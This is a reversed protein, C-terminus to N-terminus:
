QAQHTGYVVDSEARIPSDAFFNAVELHHVRVLFFDFTYQMVKWTPLFKLPVGLRLFNGKYQRSSGCPTGSTPSTAAPREGYLGNSFRSLFHVVSILPVTQAIANHSTGSLVNFGNKASSRKRDSKRLKGLAKRPGDPRRLDRMIQKSTVHDNWADQDAAVAVALGVVASDNVRKGGYLAIALRPNYVRVSGCRERRREGSLACSTSTHQITENEHGCPQPLQGDRINQVLEESKSGAARLVTLRETHAVSAVDRRHGGLARSAAQKRRIGGGSRPGGERMQSGKPACSRAKVKARHGQADRCAQRGKGREREDNGDGKKTPLPDDQVTAVFSKRGPRRTTNRMANAQIRLLSSPANRPFTSHPSPIVLPLLVSTKTERSNVGFGPCTLRGPNLLAHWTRRVKPLLLTNDARRGEVRSTREVQSRMEKRGTRVTTGADPGPTRLATAHREIPHGQIVIRGGDRRSFQFGPRNTREKRADYPESTMYERWDRYRQKTSKATLKQGKGEGDGSPEGQNLSPNSPVGASHRGKLPSSAFQPILGGEAEDRLSPSSPNTKHANRVFGALSGQPGFLVPVCVLQRTRHHAGARVIQTGPSIFDDETVTSLAASLGVDQARSSFQWTGTNRLYPLATDIRQECIGMQFQVTRKGRALSRLRPVTLLRGFLRQDASVNPWVSSVLEVSLIWSNRREVPRATEKMQCFTARLQAEASPGASLLAIRIKALLPVPSFSKNRHLHTVLYDNAYYPAFPNQRQLPAAAAAAIHLPLRRCDFTRCMNFELVAARSSTKAAAFNASAAAFWHRQLPLEVDVAAINRKEAAFDTRCVAAIHCQLPLQLPLEVYTSCCQQPLRVDTQPVRAETQAWTLRKMTSSNQAKDMMEQPPYKGAASGDVAVSGKRSSIRPYVMDFACAIVMRSCFDVDIALEHVDAELGTNGRYMAHLERNKKRGMVCVKHTSGLLLIAM